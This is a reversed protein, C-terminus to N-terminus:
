MSSFILVWTWRIPMACTMRFSISDLDLLLKWHTTSTRGRTRLICLLRLDKSAMWVMIHFMGASNFSSYVVSRLKSSSYSLACDRRSNCHIDKANRGNVKLSSRWARATLASVRWEDSRRHWLGSSETSVSSSMSRITQSRELPRASTIPFSLSRTACNTWWDTLSKRTSCPKWLRSWAEAPVTTPRPWKQSELDHTLYKRWFSIWSRGTREVWYSILLCLCVCSLKGM